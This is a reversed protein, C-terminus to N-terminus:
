VKLAERTKRVFRTLEDETYEWWGGRLMVLADIDYLEEQSVACEPCATDEELPSTICGSHTWESKCKPCMHSM